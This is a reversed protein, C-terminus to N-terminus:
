LDYKKIEISLKTISYHRSKLYNYHSVVEKSITVHENSETSEPCIAVKLSRVIPEHLHTRKGTQCTMCFWTDGLIFM